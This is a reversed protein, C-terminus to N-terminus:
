KHLSLFWHLVNKCLCNSESIYQLSDRRIKEQKRLSLDKCWNRILEHSMEPHFQLALANRYTFAQNRVQEGTCLLRGGYPIEFTDEHFQFVMFRDPFLAPLSRNGPVRNVPHWGTERVYRFVKAGHATAILQAGLCLGLIPMRHKADNRIRVKELALFPFEEEDNVSMPGGLIILHSAETDPIENTEWLHVYEFPIAMEQLLHEIIGLPEDPTHQFVLVRQM